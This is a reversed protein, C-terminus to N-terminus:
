RQAVQMPERDVRQLDISREDAVHLGSFFVAAITRVM